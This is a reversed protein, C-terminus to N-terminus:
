TELKSKLETALKDVFGALDEVEKRTPTPTTEIHVLANRKTRAQEIVDRDKEDIMGLVVLERVLSPLSSISTELGNEGIVSMVTDQIATYLLTYAVKFFGADILKEVYAFLATPSSRLEEERAPLTVLEFRWSPHDAVRRALSVLDNSGPLNDARKVEIVVKDDDRQAILDPTFDRLFPPTELDNKGTSVRYGKRRYQRALIRIERVADPDTLLSMQEIRGEAQIFTDQDM